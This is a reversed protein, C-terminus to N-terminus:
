REGERGQGHEGDIGGGLGCKVGVGHRLPEHKAGRGDRDLLDGRRPDARPENPGWVIRARHGYRPEYRVRERHKGGVGIFDQDLLGLDIAVARAGRFVGEDLIEVFFHALDERSLGIRGGSKWDSVVRDFLSRMMLSGRGWVFRGEIWRRRAAVEGAPTGGKTDPDHDPRAENRHVHDSDLRDEAQHWTGLNVKEPLVGIEYFSEWVPPRFGRSSKRVARSEVDNGDRHQRRLYLVVRLNDAEDFRMPCLCAVGDANATANHQESGGSKELAFSDRRAVVGERKEGLEARLFYDCLRRTDHDVAVKVGCTGTDTTELGRQPDDFALEALRRSLEGLEDNLVDGVRREAGSRGFACPRLEYAEEFTQHAGHDRLISLLGDFGKLRPEPGLTGAPPNKRNIEPICVRNACFMPHPTV